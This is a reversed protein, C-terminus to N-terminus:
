RWDYYRRSDSAITDVHGYKEMQYDLAIWTEVTTRSVCYHRTFLGLCQRGFLTEGPKLEYVLLGAFRDAKNGVYKDANCVAPFGCRLSAEFPPLSM